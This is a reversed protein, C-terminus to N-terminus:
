ENERIKTSNQAQNFLKKNSKGHIERCVCVCGALAVCVASYRLTYRPLRCGENIPNQESEM